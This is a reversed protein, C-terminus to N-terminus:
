GTAKAHGLRKRIADMEAIWVDDFGHPFPDDELPAADRKESWIIDLTAAHALFRSCVDNMPLTELLGGRSALLDSIERNIQLIREVVERRTTTSEQRIEGVHDILRWKTEGPVSNRDGTLQKWLSISLRRRSHVPGYLESLQREGFAREAARRESRATLWATLSAAAVAAAAAIVAVLIPQGASVADVSSEVPSTLM